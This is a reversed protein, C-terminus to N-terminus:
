SENLVKLIWSIMLVIVLLLYLWELCGFKPRACMGMRSSMNRHPPCGGYKNEDYVIQEVLQKITMDLVKSQEYNDLSAHNEEFQLYANIGILQDLFISRVTDNAMQSHIKGQLGYEQLIRCLEDYVMAYTTM